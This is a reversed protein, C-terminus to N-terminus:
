EKKLSLGQLYINTFGLVPYQKAYSVGNILNEIVRTILWLNEKVKPFPIYPSEVIGYQDPRLIANM